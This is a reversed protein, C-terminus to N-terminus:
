RIRDEVESFTIWFKEPASNHTLYLKYGVIWSAALTIASGTLGVM